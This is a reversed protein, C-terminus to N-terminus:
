NEAGAFMCQPYYKDHLKTYELVDKIKTLNKDVSHCEHSFQEFWPVIIYFYILGLIIIPLIVDIFVELVM